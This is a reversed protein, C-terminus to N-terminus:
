IDCCCYQKQLHQTKKIVKAFNNSRLLVSDKVSMRIPPEKKKKKLFYNKWAIHM